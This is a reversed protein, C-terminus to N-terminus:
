GTITITITNSYVRGSEPKEPTGRTAPMWIRITYKGPRDFSYDDSIIARDKKSKGPALQGSRRSGPPRSPRIDNYVAKAVEVGQEDRIDYHFGDPMNGHGGFEMPILEDSINTTTMWIIVNTGLIVEPKEASIVITFKATEPNSQAALAGAFLIQPLFALALVKMTKKM